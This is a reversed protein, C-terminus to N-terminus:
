AIDIIKSADVGTITVDVSAAPYNSLAPLTLTFTVTDGANPVSTGEPKTNVIKYGFDSATITLHSLTQGTVTPTRLGGQYSFTGYFERGGTKIRDHVITTPTVTFLPDNEDSPIETRTVVAVGEYTNKTLGNLGQAFARLEGKSADPNIGTYTKNFTKGSQDTSTIVLSTKNAM